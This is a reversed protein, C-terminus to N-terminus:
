ASRGFGVTSATIRSHCPRCLAELNIRDYALPGNLGQGDLHHVDRAPRGCRCTPQDRLVERRLRRWRPAEYGRTGSPGSPKRPRHSDCYGRDVIEHCAPHSCVRM